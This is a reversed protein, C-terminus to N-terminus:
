ENYPPLKHKKRFVPDDVEGTILAEKMVPDDPGYKEIHEEWSLQEPPGIEDPHPLPPYPEHPNHFIVSLLLSVAVMITVAGFVALGDVIVSM